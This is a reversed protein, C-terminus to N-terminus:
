SAVIADGYSDISVDIKVIVGHFTVDVDDCCVPVMVSGSCWVPFETLSCSAQLWGFLLCCYVQQRMSANEVGCSNKGTSFICHRRAPTKSTNWAAAAM